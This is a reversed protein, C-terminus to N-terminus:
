NFTRSHTYENFCFMSFYAVNTVLIISTKLIYFLFMIAAHFRYKATPKATSDLSGGPSVHSIRYPYLIMFCM